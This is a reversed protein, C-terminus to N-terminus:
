FIIFNIRGLSHCFVYWDLSMSRCNHYAEGNLYTLRGEIKENALGLLMYVAITLFLSGVVVTVPWFYLSLAIEGM